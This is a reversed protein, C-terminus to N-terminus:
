SIVRKEDEWFDHRSIERFIERSYILANNLVKHEFVHIIDKFQVNQTELIDVIHLRLSEIRQLINALNETSQKHYVNQDTGGVFTANGLFRKHDNSVLSFLYEKDDNFSNQLKIWLDNEVSLYDLTAHDVMPREIADSKVCIIISCCIGLFIVFNM